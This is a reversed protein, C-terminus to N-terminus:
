KNKKDGIPEDGLDWQGKRRTRQEVCRRRDHPVRSRRRRERNGRRRKATRLLQKLLWARDVKPTKMCLMHSIRAQWPNCSPSAFIM